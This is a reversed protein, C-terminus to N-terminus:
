AQPKSSRYSSPIIHPGREWMAHTSLMSWSKFEPDMSGSGLAGVKLQWYGSCLLSPTFYTGQSNSSVDYMAGHGPIYWIGKFNNKNKNWFGINHFQQCCAKNTNYRHLDLYCQRGLESKGIWGLRGVVTGSTGRVCVGCASRALLV